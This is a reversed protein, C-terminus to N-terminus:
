LVHHGRESLENVSNGCYTCSVSIAMMRSCVRELTKKDISGRSGAKGIAGELPLECGRFAHGYGVPNTGQLLAAVAGQSISRLARWCCGGHPPISTVLISCNGTLPVIPRVRGAFEAAHTATEAKLQAEPDFLASAQNM